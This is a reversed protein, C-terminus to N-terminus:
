RRGYLYNVLGRILTAQSTRIEGDVSGRITTRIADDFSYTVDTIIFRRRRPDEPLIIHDGVLCEYYGEVTCEIESGPKAAKESVHPNSFLNNSGDDTTPNTVNFLSNDDNVGSREPYEDPSPYPDMEDKPPYSPYGEDDRSQAEGSVGDPSGDPYRLFQNLQKDTGEERRSEADTFPGRGLIPGGSKSSGYDIYKPGGSPLPGPENHGWEPNRTEEESFEPVPAFTSPPGDRYLKVTATSFVPGSRASSWYKMVVAWDKNVYYGTNIILAKIESNWQAYTTPGSVWAVTWIGATASPRGGQALITAGARSVGIPTTFDPSEIVMYRWNDVPKYSFAFRSASAGPDTFPSYSSTKKRPWGLAWGVDVSWDDGELYQIEAGKLPVRYWGKVDRLWQDSVL